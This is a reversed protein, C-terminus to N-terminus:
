IGMNASPIIFGHNNDEIGITYLKILMPCDTVDFSFETTLPTKIDISDLNNGSAFNPTCASAPIEDKGFLCVLKLSANSLAFHNPLDITIKTYETSVNTTSQLAVRPEYM